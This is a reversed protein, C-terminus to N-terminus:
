LNEQVVRLKKIINYLRTQDIQVSNVINTLENIVKSLEGKPDGEIKENIEQALYFRSIWVTKGNQTMIKVRKTNEDLILVHEGVQEKPINGEQWDKGYPFFKYNKLSFIKGVYLKSVKAM